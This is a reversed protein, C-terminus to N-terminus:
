LTCIGIYFWYKMTYWKTESHLLCTTISCVRNRLVTGLPLSNLNSFIKEPTFKQPFCTQPLNALGYKPLNSSFDCFKCFKRAVHYWKWVQYNLHEKWNHWCIKCVSGLWFKFYFTCPDIQFISLGTMLPHVLLTFIICLWWNRIRATVVLVPLRCIWLCM